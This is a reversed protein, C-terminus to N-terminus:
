RSKLRAVWRELDCRKWRPGSGPVQVPQPLEGSSVLRYFGSKSLGLLTWAARPELLLPAPATAREVAAAILTALDDATKTTTM